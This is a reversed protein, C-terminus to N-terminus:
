GWNVLVKEKTIYNNQETPSQHSHSQLVKCAPMNPRSKWVPWHPKSPANYIMM